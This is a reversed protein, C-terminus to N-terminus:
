FHRYVLTPLSENFRLSEHVTTKGFCFVATFEGNDLISLSYKMCMLALIYGSRIGVAILIDLVGTPNGFVHVEGKQVKRLSHLFM